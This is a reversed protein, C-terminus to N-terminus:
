FVSPILTLNSSILLSALNYVVSDACYSPTESMFMDEEDNMGALEFSHSM